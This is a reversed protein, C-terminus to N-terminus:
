KIYIKIPLYAILYTPLHIIQLTKMIWHLYEWPNDKRPTLNEWYHTHILTLSQEHSNHLLHLFATGPVCWGSPSNLKIHPQPFGMLFWTTQLFSFFMDSSRPQLQTINSLSTSKPGHLHIVPLPGQQLTLHDSDSGPSSSFWSWSTIRQDRRLFEVAHTSRPSHLSVHTCENM